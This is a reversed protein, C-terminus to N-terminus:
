YAAQKRVIRKGAKYRTKECIPCIELNEYKKTYTICSNICCDVLIPEFPVLWELAKHLRYLSVDFLNMKRLIDNFTAETLNHKEKIHFLWLGKVLNESVELGSKIIYGNAICKSWIILNKGLDKTEEREIKEEEDERETEEEEDEDEDEDEEEEGAEEEEDIEDM